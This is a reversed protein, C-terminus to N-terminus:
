SILYHKNHTMITPALLAVDDAYAFAGMFIDGVYCGLKSQRLSEVVKYICHLYYQHYCEVKKLVTTPSLPNPCLPTVARRVRFDDRKISM